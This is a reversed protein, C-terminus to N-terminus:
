ETAALLPAMLRRAAKAAETPSQRVIADFVARHEKLNVPVDPAEATRGRPRRGRAMAASFAQDISSTLLRYLSGLAANHSADAIAFHFARFRKDFLLDTLEAPQESLGDLASAIRAVDEFDRREAALRAVAEDLVIRLEVRERLKARGIRRMADVPDNINSVYTGDGQRVELIGAYALVRVAERVTSRSVKLLAALEAETPVRSGVPWTGNEVETRMIDIADDVLSRRHVNTLM